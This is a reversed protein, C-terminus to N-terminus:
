NLIALTEEVDIEGNQLKTLTEINDKQTNKQQGTHNPSIGSANVDSLISINGSVTDLTLKHGGGNFQANWKRKTFSSYTPTLDTKFAGSVSKGFSSFTNDEPVIATISGSVSKFFYDGEDIPSDIIIKGSVTSIIGNTLKSDLLKIKGSISKIYEIGTCNNSVIKGSVTTIKGDAFDCNSFNIKGSVSKASTIGDCDTGTIKGSVSKLKIDGQIESVQIKADVTKVVLNSTPPVIIIYDVKFSPTIFNFLSKIINTQVHVSGDKEQWIEIEINDTINNRQHKIAKIEIQNTEGPSITISGSINNVSLSAPSSVEFKEQYVEQNDM